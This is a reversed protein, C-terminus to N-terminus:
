RILDVTTRVIDNTNVCSSTLDDARLISKFATLMDDTTPRAMNNFIFQILDTLLSFSISDFILWVEKCQM